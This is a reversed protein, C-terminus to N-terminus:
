FSTPFTDTDPIKYVLLLARVIDSTKSVELIVLNYFNYEALIVLVQPKPYKWFQLPTFTLM